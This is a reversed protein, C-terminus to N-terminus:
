VGILGTLLINLLSLILTILCYYFGIRNEHINSMQLHHHLPAMKFVRKKKAKFVAVQIIDSMATLVYMIGIILILLEFRTFVFFCTIFGGLSLSGTDGMFIKAPFFNYCLFVSLCGIMVFSLSLLNQIEINMSPSLVLNNMFILLFANLGLLVFISVSSALGDLGDILNVSNVLSLFVFMVFPIIFIGLDITIFTLPVFIESGVFYFVFISVILSIGLQGIIKQYAKLGENQKYKIKIYDDLFGLIGLSITTGLTVMALTSDKGFLLMGSVLLGFLFILGGFTPTGQKSKHEKVYHLITQEAKLKKSLTFLFPSIAMCVAFGILFDLIFKEM